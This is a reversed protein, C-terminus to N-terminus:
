AERLLTLIAENWGVPGIGPARILNPLVVDPDYSGDPRQVLVPQDVAQLMPLDNLSDGLGITQLAAAHRRFCEILYRCAQGKDSLGLLHYFRGGRTCVLGREEALRHVKETLTPPGELVFPEDYERQKALVAEALSLGTRKSVEEVSMDGFGRIPCELVQDIEKLWSRLKAYPIGLEIVQYPGRLATGDLPFSFFGKPIFVAGGNEVIFPGSHNLQYRIPEMEARTKSSALVLPIGRSRIGDLASAASGFSYTVSDLLTGDLDSMVLRNLGTAEM